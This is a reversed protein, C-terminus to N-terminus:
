KLKAPQLCLCWTCSAGARQRWAIAQANTWSDMFADSTINGFAHEPTGSCPQVNGTPSVYATELGSGCSKIKGLRLEGGDSFEACGAMDSPMKLKMAHKQSLDRLLTATTLDRNYKFLDQNQSLSARGRPEVLAAKVSTAGVSKLDKFLTDLGNLDDKCLTLRPVTTVGIRILTQVAKLARQYVGKGRIDDHVTESGDFSVRVEFVGADRLLKGKEATVLVGNTTLVTNLQLSAAHALLSDLDPHCLPEGGGIGLELVGIAALENMIQRIRESKLENNRNARPSSNTICHQCELNCLYTFDFYVKLPAQPEFSALHSVPNETYDSPKQNRYVMRTTRDYYIEGDATSRHMWKTGSKMM